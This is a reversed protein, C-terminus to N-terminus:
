LTSAVIAWAPRSFYADPFKKTLGRSKRTNDPDMTFRGPKTSAIMRNSTKEGPSKSICGVTRATLPFVSLVHSRCVKATPTWSVRQLISGPDILASLKIPGRSNTSTWTFLCFGAEGDPLSEIPLQTLWAPVHLKFHNPRLRRRSGRHCFPTTRGCRPYAMAEVNSRLWQRIDRM